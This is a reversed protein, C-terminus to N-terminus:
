TAGGHLRHPPWVFFDQMMRNGEGPLAFHEAIGAFFEALDEEHHREAFRAGVKMGLEVADGPRDLAWEVRERISEPAFRFAARSADPFQERLAPTDNTICLTHRSAARVFREHLGLESNPTMDIVALAHKMLDRSVFYDGSPVLRARRGCFDVHGWLEGHVEVPLDLLARAIMTSKARRVYDDLQAIYLALLRLDSGLDFRLRDMVHAISAREIDDCTVPRQATPVLQESLELLCRAIREPLRDRWLARLAEPNNGNKLFLIRGAKKKECDVAAAPLADFPVLPMLASPRGPAMRRHFDRHEPFGYLNVTYPSVDFHRDLYYSPHDGLIKLFPTKAISWFNRPGASTSGELEAGMGVFGYAFAFTGLLGDAFMQEIEAANNGHVIRHKWGCRELMPGWAALIGDLARSRTHGLITVVTDRTGGQPQPELVIGSTRDPRAGPDAGPRPFMTKLMSGLM